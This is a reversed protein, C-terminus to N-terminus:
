GRIEGLMEKFQERHRIEETQITRVKDAMRSRNARELHDILKQYEMDAGKEDEIANELLDAIDEDEVFPGLSTFRKFGLPGEPM